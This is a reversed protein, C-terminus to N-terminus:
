FPYFRCEKGGIRGKLNDFYTLGGGGFGGCLAQATCDILNCFRNEEFAVQASLKIQKYCSARPLDIEFLCHKQGILWQAFCISGAYAGNGTKGNTPHARHSMQGFYRCKEIFSQEIILRYVRGSARRKMYKAARGLLHGIQTLPPNRGAAPLHLFSKCVRKCFWFGGGVNCIYVNNVDVFSVM